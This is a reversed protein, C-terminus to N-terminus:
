RLFLGHAGQVALSHLLQLRFDRLHLCLLVAQEILQADAELFM